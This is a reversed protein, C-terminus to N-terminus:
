HRAPTSLYARAYAAAKPDLSRLSSTIDVLRPRGFTEVMELWDVWRGYELVRKVLWATHQKADVGTPDPDRFLHPSLPPMDSDLM